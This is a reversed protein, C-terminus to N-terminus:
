SRYETGVCVLAVARRPAGAWWPSPLTPFASRSVTLAFLAFLAFTGSFDTDTRM